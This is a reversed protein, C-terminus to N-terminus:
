VCKHKVAWMVIRTLSFMFHRENALSNGIKHYFQRGLAFEFTTSVSGLSDDGKGLFSFFGLRCGSRDMKSAGVPM